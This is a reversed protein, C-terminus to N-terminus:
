GIDAATLLTGATRRATGVSGTDGDLHAGAMSGDLLQLLAPVLYSLEKRPGLVRTFLGLQWSRYDRVASRIGEHTPYEAAAKAFPCGKWDPSCVGGGYADFVAMVRERVGEPAADVVAEVQERIAQHRQRLYAEVLAEKTRFHVYMTSKAVGSEAIVRDVGVPHIGEEYFLRDAAALLRERASPRKTTLEM